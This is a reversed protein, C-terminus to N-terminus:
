KRFLSYQITLKRQVLTKEVFPLQGNQTTYRNFKDQSKAKTSESKSVRKWVRVFLQGDFRSLVFIYNYESLLLYIKCFWFAM